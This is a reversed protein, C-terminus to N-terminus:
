RNASRKESVPGSERHVDKARKDRRLGLFVPQRLLGDDTWEAFKIQAVLKPEIWTVREMESLGMGAGFRAKKLLPLDCFPCSERRLESFKAHLSALSKENFGTGVKGAYRLRDGEFYGILIAGFYKRSRRPSTFAGIVFEQEAQVKCKIWAGSRRDVEYHSDPRKAVIGELGNKKAAAFLEAPEVDFAPSLRVERKWKGMLSKLVKRRERLPFELLAKGDRHMIDFVYYVIAKPNGGSGRNQLLQFRSRGKEDLAVIEGDIVASRCPLKMLEKEVVPFDATLPKHNRSWLEIAGDNIVAIARYGDLKVECQWMGSPLTSSGLAKMPAVFHAKEPKPRRVMADRHKTM